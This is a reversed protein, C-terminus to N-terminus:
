IHTQSYRLEVEDLNPGGIRACNRHSDPSKSVTEAPGSCQHRWIERSAAAIADNIMTMTAKSPTADIRETKDGVTGVTSRTASAVQAAM